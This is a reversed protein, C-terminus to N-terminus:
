GGPAAGVHFWTRTYFGDLLGSAAGRERAFVPYRESLAELLAPLPIHGGRRQRELVVLFEIRHKRSHLLAELNRLKGELSEDPGAPRLAPLRLPDYAGGLPRAVYSSLLRKRHVVQDWMQRERNLIGPSTPYYAVAYDDPDRALLQSVGSRPLLQLPPTIWCYEFAVVALLAAAVFPRRADHGRSPTGGQGLWRAVTCAAFVSFCLLAPMLFRHPAKSIGFGPIARLLLYPLPVSEHAQGDILLYPGLALVAFVLGLGLWRGGTSRVRRSFVGMVILAILSYGLSAPVYGPGFGLQQNSRRRKELEQFDGPLWATALEYVPGGLRPPLLFHRPDTGEPTVIEIPVKARTLAWGAEDALLSRAGAWLLPAALAGAVLAVVGLRRWARATSRPDTALLGVGLLVAFFAHTFINYAVAAALVGTGVANLRGGRLTRLLLLVFFVFYQTSLLDTRGIMWLRHASFAFPIAAILAAPRSRSVMAALAYTGIATLIFSALVVANHALLVGDSGGCWEMLWVWPAVAALGLTHLILSVGSPWGIWSTWLPSAHEVLLAQHIWWTNWLYLLVDAGRPAAGDLRPLLERFVALTLAVFFIVAGLASIWAREGM